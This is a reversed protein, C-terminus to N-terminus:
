KQRQEIWRRRRISIKSTLLSWIRYAVENIPYTKNKWDYLKIKDTLSNQHKNENISSRRSQCGKHSHISKEPWRIRSNIVFVPSDVSQKVWYSKKIYIVTELSNIRSIIHSPSRKHICKAPIIRQMESEKVTHM